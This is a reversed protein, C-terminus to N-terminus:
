DSNLWSFLGVVLALTVIGGFLSVLVSNRDGIEAKHKGLTLILLYFRGIYFSVVDILFTFVADMM